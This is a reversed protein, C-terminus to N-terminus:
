PRPASIKSIGHMADTGCCNGDKECTQLEDKGGKDVNSSRQM